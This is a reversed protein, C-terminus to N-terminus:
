SWRIYCSIGCKGPTESYVDNDQKIRVAFLDAACLRLTEVVARVRVGVTLELMGLLVRPNSLKSFASVSSM